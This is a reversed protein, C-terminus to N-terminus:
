AAGQQRFQYLLAARAREVHDTIPVPVVSQEEVVVEHLAVSEGLSNSATLQVTYTGAATFRHQPNQLTSVNRSGSLPDGFDWAWATPGNETEDTFDASLRFPDVDHSFEAVPALAAFSFVESWDSDGAENTALVRWYWTGPTLTAVGDLSFSTAVIGAEDVLPSAFSPNSSVQLRYTEAGEAAEWLFTPTATTVDSEDAPDTLVPPDPLPNPCANPLGSPALYEINDCWGTFNDAGSNGIDKGLNLQVQSSFAFTGTATTYKLVGNWYIAVNNGGVDVVRLKGSISNSYPSPPPPSSPGLNVDLLLESFLNVSTDVSLSVRVIVNFGGDFNLHYRIGVRPPGIDLPNLVVTAGEFFQASTNHNDTTGVNIDIGLEAEFITPQAPLIQSINGVTSGSPGDDNVHQYRGAAQEISPNGSLESVTWDPDVGPGECEDQYYTLPFECSPPIAM